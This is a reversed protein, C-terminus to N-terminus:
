WRDLNALVDASRRPSAAGGPPSTACHLTEGLLRRSLGPLFGFLAGPRSCAAAWRTPSWCTAAARRRWWARIGLASDSRLELPDCYDDDLRRLIADVRQLGTLTKLWVEGDRM